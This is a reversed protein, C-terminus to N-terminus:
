YENMNIDANFNHIAESSVVCNRNYIYIYNTLVILM